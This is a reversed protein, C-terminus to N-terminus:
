NFLTKKGFDPFFDQYNQINYDKFVQLLAEEISQYDNTATAFADDSLWEQVYEMNYTHKHFWRIKYGDLKNRHEGHDGNYRCLIVEWEQGKYKLWVSFDQLLDINQRMFIEFYYKHANDFLSIKQQKHNYQQKSTKPKVNEIFKNCTKLEELLDKTLEM